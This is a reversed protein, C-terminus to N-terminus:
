PSCPNTEVTLAAPAVIYGPVPIFFKAQRSEGPNLDWRFLPQHLGNAIGQQQHHTATLIVNEKQDFWQGDRLQQEIYIPGNWLMSPRKNPDTQNLYEVSPTRTDALRSIDSKLALNAYSTFGFHASICQDLPNKLKIHANYIVGYGGFLVSASDGHRVLATPSQEIDFFKWGFASTAQDIKYSGAGLWQSGEYIGASRGYGMGQYWGPWKVDGIAYKQPVHTLAEDHAIVDIAICGGEAHLTLAGEVLSEATIHELTKWEGAHLSVEKMPHYGYLIHNSHLSNNAIQAGIWDPRITKYGQWDSWSSTDLMGQWSVKTAKDATVVISLQRQGALHKDSLIHAVYLHLDKVWGEQCGKPTEFWQDIEDNIIPYPSPAQPHHSRPTNEMPPNTSFLLGYGEVDEPNNSVALPTGIFEGSLNMLQAYSLTSLTSSM